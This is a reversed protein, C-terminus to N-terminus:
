SLVEVEPNLISAYGLNGKQVNSLDIERARMSYMLVRGNM